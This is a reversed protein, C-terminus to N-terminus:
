HWAYSQTWGSDCKKQYEPLRCQCICSDMGVTYAWHTEGDPLRQERPSPRWLLLYISGCKQSKAGIETGVVTFSVMEGVQEATSLLISPRILKIYIWKYLWYITHSMVHLALNLWSCWPLNNKGCQISINQVSAHSWPITNFLRSFNACFLVQLRAQSHRLLEKLPSLM